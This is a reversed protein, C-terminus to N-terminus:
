VLVQLTQPNLRKVLGRGELGEMLYQQRRKTDFRSWAHLKRYEVTGELTATALCEFWFATRDPFTSRCLWLRDDDSLGSGLETRRELRAVYNLLWTHDDSVPNTDPNNIPIDNTQTDLAYVPM